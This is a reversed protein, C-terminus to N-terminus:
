KSIEEKIASLLEEPLNSPDFLYFFEEKTIDLEKANEVFTKALEKIKEKGDKEELLKPYTSLLLRKSFSLFLVKFFLEKEENELMDEEPLM